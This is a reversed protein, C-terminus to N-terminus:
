EGSASGSEEEMEFEGSESHKAAEPEDVDEYDTDYAHKFRSDKSLDFDQGLKQAYQLDFNPDPKDQKIRSSSKM